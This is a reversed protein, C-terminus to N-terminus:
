MKFFHVLLSVKLAQTGCACLRTLVLSSAKSHASPPAWSNVGFKLTLHLRKWAHPCPIRAWVLRKWSSSANAWRKGRHTGSQGSVQEWGWVVRERGKGRVIKEDFLFFFFSFFSLFFAFFLVLFLNLTMPFQNALHIYRQFLSRETVLILITYMKVWPM